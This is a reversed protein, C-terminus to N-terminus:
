KDKNISDSCGSSDCNASYLGYIIGFLVIGMFGWHLVMWLVILLIVIILIILVIKKIVGM